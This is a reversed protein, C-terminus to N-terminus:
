RMRSDELYRVYLPCPDWSPIGCRGEMTCQFSVLSRRGDAAVYQVRCTVDRRSVPCGTTEVLPELREPSHHM